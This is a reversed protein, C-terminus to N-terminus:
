CSVKYCTQSAATSFSYGYGNQSRLSPTHRHPVDEIAESHIHDASRMARKAGCSCCVGRRKCSLAILLSHQLRRLVDKRCRSRPNRLQPVRRLDEVGRRTLVWVPAPIQVGVPVYPQRQLPLRDPLAGLGRHPDGITDSTRRQKRGRTAGSCSPQNPPRHSPTTNTTAICATPSEPPPESTCTHRLEWTYRRNTLSTATRTALWPGHESRSSCKAYTCLKIHGM